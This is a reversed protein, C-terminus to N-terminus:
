KSTEKTFNQVLKIYAFQIQNQDAPTFHKFSSLEKIGLFINSYRDLLSKNDKISPLTKLQSDVYEKDYEEDGDETDEEQTQLLDLYDQFLNKTIYVLFDQKDNFNYINSVIKKVDELDYNEVVYYAYRLATKHGVGPLKEFCQVLDDLFKLQKM